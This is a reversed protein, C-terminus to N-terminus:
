GVIRRNSVRALHFADKLSLLFTRPHEAVWQEGATWSPFFHIFHCFSTIVDNDFPGDPRLFSVALDAPRASRVGDPAVLLEVAEGTPASSRVRVDAGLVEPLFLTDWACWAWLRVGNAEIEHPPMEAVTLGWFGVVRGDGDRFVAPWTALASEVREQPLAAHEAIQTTSVPRGAALLRYTSLAIRKEESDLDPLAGRLAGALQEVSPIVNQM